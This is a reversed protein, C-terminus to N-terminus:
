HPIHVLYNISNLALVNGAIPYNDTYSRLGTAGDYMSVLSFWCVCVCVSLWSVTYQTVSQGGNTLLSINVEVEFLSLVAVEVSDIIPVPPALAHLTPPYHSSHELSRPVCLYMICLLLNSALSCEGFLEVQGKYGGTSCVSSVLTWHPSHLLGRHDGGMCM